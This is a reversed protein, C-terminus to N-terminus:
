KEQSSKMALKYLWFGIAIVLALVIVTLVYQEMNERKELKTTLRPDFDSNRGSKLRNVTIFDQRFWNGQNVFQSLDYYAKVSKKNGYLMTLQEADKTAVLFLGREIWKLRISKIELPPNDKNTIVFRYFRNKAVTHEIFDRSQQLTSIPFSYINANSILPYFSDEEGTASQFISVKRYYYPNSVDFHVSSFPLGAKLTIVTNNKEDTQTTFDTFEAENYTETREKLKSSTGTVRDILLKKVAGKGQVNFELGDYKLNFSNSKAQENKGTNERDIVTLRFYRNDTEQFKVTTKKLNVQSSFDYIVDKGLLEWYKSGEGPSAHVLVEKNFDRNWTQLKLTDIAKHKEPLALEIIVKGGVETLKIVKLKYNKIATAPKLNNIVVYPVTKGAKDKIRLDTCNSRTCNKLIDASLPVKYLAGEKFTGSLTTKFLFNEKRMAISSEKIRQTNGSIAPGPCLIFFSFLMFALLTIPFIRKM